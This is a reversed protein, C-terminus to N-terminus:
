KSYKKSIYMKSFANYAMDSIINKNKLSSVGDKSNPFYFSEEQKLLSNWIDIHKKAYNIWTWDAVASVLKNRQVSEAKLSNVIDCIERVPYVIGNEADLHYGQPSVITKVGASLADLFAMSGEDFSYYLFYDLHPVISTYKVYDFVDYYEVEFGMLTLQNVVASWGTGMIVFKFDHGSIKAALELLENEKKRGDAHTKSLIGVSLKRPKIVSDHAPNIYALRSRPVGSFQLQNVTAQSMCIGLPANNLQYKIKNLKEVNDIHTIMVTDLGNVRGDYDYYIIHHNIDASSDPKKAIDVQHGLVTLEDRLRLAFKGLIWGSTDEYCVIRVKM